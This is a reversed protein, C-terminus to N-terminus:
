RGRDQQLALAERGGPFGGVGAPEAHEFRGPCPGPGAGPAEGRGHPGGQGRTLDLRRDAERLLLSCGDSTLFGGDFRGVVERRGLGHFQLQEPTCQTGM